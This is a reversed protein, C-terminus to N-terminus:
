GFRRKLCGDADLRGNYSIRNQGRRYRDRQRRGNTHHQAALNLTQNINLTPEGPQKSKATKEALKQQRRKEARNM